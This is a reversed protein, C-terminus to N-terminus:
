CGAVLLWCAAAAVAAAAIAVALPSLFVQALSRVLVRARAGAM